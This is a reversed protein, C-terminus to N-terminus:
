TAFVLGCGATSIEGVLERKQLDVITVSQGPTFNYIALFRENALLNTTTTKPMGSVRKAPIEIEAIVSLTAADYITVVDTREGGRSGRSYFTEIVYHENRSQSRQYSAILSATMMGKYQDGLTDALPDIVLIEGESMHMFSVDHFMAWHDPYPTPLSLVGGIAEPEFEAAATVCTFMVTLAISRALKNM